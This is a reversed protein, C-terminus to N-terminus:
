YWCLLLLACANFMWFLYAHTFLVCVFTEIHYNIERNNATGDDDVETPSGAEMWHPPPPPSLFLRQPEPFCREPELVVLMLESMSLTNNM